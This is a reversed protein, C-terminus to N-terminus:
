SCSPVASGWSIAPASGSEAVAKGGPERERKRSLTPTLTRDKSIATAQVHHGSEKQRAAGSAGRCHRPGLDGSPGYLADNRTTADGRVPRFHPHFVDLQQRVRRDPQRRHGGGFRRGRPERDTHDPEARRRGRQAFGDFQRHRGVSEGPCHQLLSYEMAGGGALANSKDMPRPRGGRACRGRPMREVM